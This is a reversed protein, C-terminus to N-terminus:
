YLVFDSMEDLVCQDLVRELMQVSVFGSMYHLVSDSMEDLVCEFIQVSVCEMGSELIQVYVYRVSRLFYQHRLVHQQARDTLQVSGRHTDYLEIWCYQYQWLLM